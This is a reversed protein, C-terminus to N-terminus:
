ESIQLANLRMPGLELKPVLFILSQLKMNKGEDTSIWNVISMMFFM